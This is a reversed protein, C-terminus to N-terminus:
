RYVFEKFKVYDFIGTMKIGSFARVSFMLIFNQVREFVAKGAIMM